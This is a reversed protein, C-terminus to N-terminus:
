GIRYEGKLIDEHFHKAFERCLRERVKPNFLDHPDEILKHEKYFKMCGQNVLNEWVKPDREKSKKVLVVQAAPLFYKKHLDDQNLIYEFVDEVLQNENFKNKSEHDGANVKGFFENLLM